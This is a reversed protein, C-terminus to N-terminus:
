ICLGHPHTGRLLDSSGYIRALARGPYVKGAAFLVFLKFFVSFSFIDHDSKVIHGKKLEVFLQEPFLHHVDLPGKKELFSRHAVVVHPVNYCGAGLEYVSRYEKYIFVVSDGVHTSTLAKFAPECFLQQLFASAAIPLAFRWIKDTLPGHLMDIESARAM